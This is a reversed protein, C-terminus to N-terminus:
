KTYAIARLEEKSFGYLGGVYEDLEQQTAFTRDADILQLDVIPLEDLEYNNIHNNSSTLKFRWNLISSSLLIKLKKLTPLSASLYNCSNGLIDTPECFVFRLRYTSDINSINQGILRPKGYDFHMYETSKCQLFGDDVYETDGYHVGTGTIMKGRVLRHTTKQQTIHKSNLTLDLEGRKNRVESLSKLKPFKSMKKLFDWDHVSILPIEMNVPFLEKILSLSVHFEEMNSSIIIDTTVGGKQLYFINTAQTVNNEFLVSKEPYYVIERVKNQCLLYKRLCGVSKDAFLTSPCIVGLEGCNRLMDVMREISLQYLNLMGELAYHYRGCSRYYATQRKMDERFEDSTKHSPKLVLYPPNSVIADYKKENTEQSFLGVNEDGALANRQQIRQSIVQIKDLSLEPIYSCAKLRAINIAIKDIDVADICQLVARQAEIGRSQFYRVIDDYFRGTGCAFDLVQLNDLTTFHSLTSYVIKQTIFSQTYVKGGSIMNEKSHLRKIMGQQLSFGSGLYTIHLDECAQPISTLDLGKIYQAFYGDTIFCDSLVKQAHPIAREVLYTYIFDLVVHSHITYVRQQLTTDDCCGDIFGSEYLRNEEYQLATTLM